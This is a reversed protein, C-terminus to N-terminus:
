YFSIQGNPNLIQNIKLKHTPTLRGSIEQTSYVNTCIYKGKLENFLSTLNDLSYQFIEDNYLSDREKKNLSIGHTPFLDIIIIYKKALEELAKQRTMKPNTTLKIGSNTCVRALYKDYIGHLPSNITLQNFAYNPHPFPMGGPCSEWFILTFELNNILNPIVIQRFYIEWNTKYFLYQYYWQNWDINKNKVRRKSNNKDGLFDLREKFDTFTILM